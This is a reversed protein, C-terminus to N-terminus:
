WNKTERSNETLNNNNLLRKDGNLISLILNLSQSALLDANVWMGRNRLTFENDKHERESYPEMSPNWVEDKM